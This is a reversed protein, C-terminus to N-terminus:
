IVLITKMLSVRDAVGGGVITKVIVGSSRGGVIGFGLGSGDNELQIQEVQTWETNLVMNDYDNSDKSSSGSHSEVSVESTKRQITYKSKATEDTVVTQELPKGDVLDQAQKLGSLEENDDGHHHHDSPVPEGRAAVLTIM